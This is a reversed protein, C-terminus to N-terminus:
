RIRKGSPEFAACGLCECIKCVLQHEENSLELGVRNGFLLMEHLDLCLKDHLFRITGRAGRYQFELGNFPVLSVCDFQSETQVIFEQKTLVPASLSDRAEELTLCDNGRCIIVIRSSADDVLDTWDELKYSEILKSSLGTSSDIAAKRTLFQIALDLLAGSDKALFWQPSHLGLFWTDEAKHLWFSVGTYCNEAVMKEACVIRGVASTHPQMDRFEPDEYCFFGHHSITNRITAYDM